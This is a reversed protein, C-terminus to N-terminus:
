PHLAMSSLDKLSTFSSFCFIPAQFWLAVASRLQMDLRELCLLLCLKTALLAERNVIARQM